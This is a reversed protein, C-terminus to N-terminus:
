GARRLAGGQRRRSPPPPHGVARRPRRSARGRRTSGSRARLITRPLGLRNPKRGSRHRRDGPKGRLETTDPAAAPGLDDVLQLVAQHGERSRNAVARATEDRGDAETPRARTDTGRSPGLENREHELSRSLDLPREIRDCGASAARACSASAPLRPRLRSGPVIDRHALERRREVLIWCAVGGAPWSVRGLDERREFLSAPEALAGPHDLDARSRAPSM